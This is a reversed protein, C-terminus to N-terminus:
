SKMNRFEKEWYDLLTTVNGSGLKKRWHPNGFVELRRHYIKELFDSFESDSETSNNKPIIGLYKECIKVIDADEGIEFKVAQGSGSDAVDLPDLERDIAYLFNMWLSIWLAIKSGDHTGSHMRIELTPDPRNIGRLNIDHYRSDHPRWLSKFEGLTEINKMTRQSLYERIPRCHENKLRSSAVLTYFAPSFRRIAQVLRKTQEIKGYNWGLHVHLGTSHDVTLSLKKLSEETELRHFILAIDEFGEKGRLIPSVIEWGCSADFAVNWVTYDIKAKELKSFLPADSCNKSGVITRIADLLPIAISNWSKRSHFDFSEEEHALECEVGFTQDRNIRLGSLRQLYVPDHKSYKLEFTSTVPSYDHSGSSKNQIRRGGDLKKGLYTTETIEKDKGNGAGSFFDVPRILLSRFNHNNFTDTVDILKFTSKRPMARAGRCAMQFYAIDSTTPVTIIISNIDPIDIGQKLMNVSIAIRHHGNRFEQILGRPDDSGEHIVVAGFRALLKGLTDAHDKNGAFIITKGLQRANTKVYDAITRNRQRDETLETITEPSIMRGGRCSENAITKGEYVRSSKISSLIPEALFGDRVLRNFSILPRIREWNNREKPTGSLGLVSIAQGKHYKRFAQEIKGGIGWHAEDHVIISPSFKKFYSINNAFVRPTTFLIDIREVAGADRYINQYLGSKVFPIGQPPSSIAFGLREPSFNYQKNLTNVAQDLLIWDWAVWLVQKGKSLFEEVAYEVATATKGGGPPISLYYTDYHRGLNLNKTESILEKQYLRLTHRNPGPKYKSM